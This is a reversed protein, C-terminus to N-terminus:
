CMRSIVSRTRRHPNLSGSTYIPPPFRRPKRRSQKVPAVARHAIWWSGLGVAIVVLPLALLYASGLQTLTERTEETDKGLALTIGGDEFVGLRLTGGSWAVDSLEKRPATPFVEQNGLNPSRYLLRGSADHIEVYHFRKSQDFLAEVSRPNRWDVGQQNIGSFFDHAETKIEDDLNEVMEERLNWAAGFGFLLLAATVVGASWLTLRSRLTKIKM